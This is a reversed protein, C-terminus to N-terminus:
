PTKLRTALVAAVAENGDAKLGALVGQQDAPVRNQSMKWKGELREIRLTFGVIARLQADVFDAPADSVAWPQARAGEQRDTLRTVLALLRDRDTFFEVPGTAHVAVYNWTPVVKGTEQKTAYWSPTVYVDAGRFIALGPATPTATAMPNARALHGYLTGYPGEGPELLMPVHSADLGGADATVLTVLGCAQMFAHLTPLDEEKFHSPVYM